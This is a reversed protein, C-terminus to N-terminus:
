SQRTLASAILARAPMGIVAGLAAARDNLASITGDQWTSRADGIRASTAAVTAAAIGRAQLAPLRSTGIGGGADNFLALLADAKLANAPDGGFLAGHSGTVIVQGADGPEVLGASDVLVLRRVAGEPALVERGESIEPVPGRPQEAAALLAAAQACAMGATLGLKRATTNAHSIRGRDLM